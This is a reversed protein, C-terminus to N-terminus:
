GYGDEGNVDRETAELVADLLGSVVESVFEVQSPSLLWAFFIASPTPSPIPMGISMKNADINNRIALLLLLATL